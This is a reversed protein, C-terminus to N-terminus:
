VGVKEPFSPSRGSSWVRLTSSQNSCKLIVVSSFLALVNLSVSEPLTRFHYWSRLASSLARQDFSPSVGLSLVNNSLRQDVFPCM